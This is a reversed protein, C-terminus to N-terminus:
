SRPKLLELAKSALRLGRDLAAMTKAMDRSTDRQWAFFAWGYIATIGAALVPRPPNSIKATDIIRYTGDITARGLALTLARDHRAAKAMNIIVTRHKQMVDFRAMLIDFLRDHPSGTFKQAFAIRDIEAALRLAAQSISVNRDTNKRKVMAM